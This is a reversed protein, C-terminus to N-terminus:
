YEGFPNTETFDLINDAETEFEENRDYSEEYSNNDYSKLIYTALSESGTIVEGASFQGDNVAVYLEIPPNAFDIDTRLNINRIEATTGSLSGTITETIIYTGIGTTSVGTITVSPAETYGYGTNTLQLASITGSGSLIAKATATLGVSPGGITVIPEVYYGSGANSVTLFRIGNDVVTATAAAGVGNGGTITVTPPNSSNYGFGANTIRISDVSRVGGVSTTIAVATANNAPNGSPSPSITVTPTSTYNYGDNTLIIEGIM